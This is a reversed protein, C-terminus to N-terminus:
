VIYVTSARYNSKIGAEDGTSEELLEAKYGAKEAWRLYMRLLIATWDMADVGGAGAQLRLVADHNDYPGNYKLEQQLETYKEFVHKFQVEIDGKLSEDDLEALERLDSIQSRLDVWPQVAASLKAQQKSFDQAQL